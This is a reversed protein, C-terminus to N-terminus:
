LIKELLDPLGVLDRLEADPAPFRDSGELGRRNEWVSRIGVAAAGAVDRALSDGIMVATAEDVGMRDIALRFIEPKPKGFGEEGSVLIADFYHGLGSGAIKARQIDSAGNTIIGLKVRSRLADLVARSEPFVVHRRRRDDLFFDGLERVMASDDLGVGALAHTWALARYGPIWGRL